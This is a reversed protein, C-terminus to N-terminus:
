QILFPNLKFTTHVSRARRPTCILRLLHPVRQAIGQGPGAKEEAQEAEAEGRVASGGGRDQKRSVKRIEHGQAWTRTMEGWNGATAKKRNREQSYYRRCRGAMWGTHKDSRAAQAGEDPCLRDRVTQTWMGAKRM